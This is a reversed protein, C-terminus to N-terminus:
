MLVVSEHDRNPDVNGSKKMKESKINHHNVLCNKKFKLLQDVEKQLNTNQRELKKCRQRLDNNIARLEEKDDSTEKMPNEAEKKAEEAVKARKIHTMGQYHTQLTEQSSVEILCLDCAFRNIQKTKKKHSKGSLHAQMVDYTNTYTDCPECYYQGNIQKVESEKKPRFEENLPLSPVVPYSSSGTGSKYSTNYKRSDEDYECDGGARNGGRRRRQNDSSSSHSSSSSRSRDNRNRYRRRPSRSRRRPSRSRSRSRRPSRRRGEYDSDRRHDQKEVKPVINEKYYQGIRESFKSPLEHYSM